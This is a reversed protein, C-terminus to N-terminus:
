PERNCSSGPPYARTPRLGAPAYARASGAGRSTSTVGAGARQRASM